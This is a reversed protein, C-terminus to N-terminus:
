KEAADIDRESQQAAQRKGIGLVHYFITVIVCFAAGAILGGRTDSNFWMGVLVLCLFVITFYNSLPFLPSKFPHADM